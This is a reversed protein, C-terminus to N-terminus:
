MTQQRMARLGAPSMSTIEDEDAFVRGATPTLLGNITRILTSKGSGSLGMVVFTEGSRVTFSADVVAATAGAARVEDQDAGGRLRDVVDAPRPGFVKYLGEVRVSTM